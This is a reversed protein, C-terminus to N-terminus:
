HKREAKLFIDASEAHSEGSARSNFGGNDIPALRAFAAGPRGLNLSLARRADSAATPALFDFPTRPGRNKKRLRKSKLGM